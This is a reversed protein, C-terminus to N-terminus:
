KLVESNLMFGNNKAVFLKKGDLATKTENNINRFLQRIESKAKERLIKATEKNHTSFSFWDGEPDDGHLLDYIESIPIPTKRMEEIANSELLAALLRVTGSNQKKFKVTRDDLFLIPEPGDKLHLQEFSFGELFLKNEATLKNIQNKLHANEQRLLYIEAKLNENEKELKDM